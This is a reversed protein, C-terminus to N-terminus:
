KKGSFFKGFKELPSMISKVVNGTAKVIDVELTENVLDITNKVKEANRELGTKGTLLKTIVSIFKHCEGRSVFSFEKETNKLYIEVNEGEAKVQPLGEYIKVDSVSYVEITRKEEEIIKKTNTIFVMNLNTLLLQAKDKQEVLMIDGKYLVVEDERLIYNKIIM